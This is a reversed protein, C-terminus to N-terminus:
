NLAFSIDSSIIKLTLFKHWCTLPLQHTSKFKSDKLIILLVHKKCYLMMTSNPELTNPIKSKHKNVSQTHM